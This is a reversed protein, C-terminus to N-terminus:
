HTNNRTFDVSDNLSGQLVHARASGRPNFLQKLVSLSVGFRLIADLFFVGCVSAVHCTVHCGAMCGM